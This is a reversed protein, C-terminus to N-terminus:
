TLPEGKRERPQQEDALGDDRLLGDGEGEGARGGPGRLESLGRLGVEPAAAPAWHARQQQRRQRAGGGGGREETGEPRRRCPQLLLRRLAPAVHIQPGVARPRELAVTRDGHIDQAVVIRHQLGLAQQQAGALTHYGWNKAVRWKKGWGGGNKWYRKEMGGNEGVEGWKGGVEGWKGGLEGM